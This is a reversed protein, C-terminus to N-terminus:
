FMRNFLFKLVKFLLFIYCVHILRTIAFMYPYRRRALEIDQDTERLLVKRCTLITTTYYTYDNSVYRENISFEDKEQKPIDLNLDIFNFNDFKFDHKYFYRLSREANFLIRQVKMLKPKKGLLILIGDVLLAPMLHRFIRIFWAYFSCNTFVVSPIGFRYSSPTEKAMRALDMTMMHYRICKASAANIIPVVKPEIQLQKWTSFAAVIMGKVCVDVPIADLTHRENNQIMHSLGLTGLIILSMPGQLVEM